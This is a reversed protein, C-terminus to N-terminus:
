PPPPTPYQPSEQFDHTRGRLQNLLRANEIAVVAQAAFNELLAIQKDGFPRGEPRNCSLVGLIAGDKRLPLLLNTRVGGRGAVARAIPDGLQTLARLHILRDRAAL